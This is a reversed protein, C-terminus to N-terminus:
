KGASFLNKLEEFWNQVVILTMTRCAPEESANMIFRKGDPHIDYTAMVTNVMQTALDERL